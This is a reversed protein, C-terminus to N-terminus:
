YFVIKEVDFKLKFLIKDILGYLMKGDNKFYLDVLDKHKECARKVTVSNVSM